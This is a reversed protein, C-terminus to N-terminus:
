PTVKVIKGALLITEDMLANTDEGNDSGFNYKDLPIGVILMNKIFKTFFEITEVAFNEEAIFGEPNTKSRVHDKIVEM